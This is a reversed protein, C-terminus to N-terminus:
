GLNNICTDGDNNSNTGDPCTTSSWTVGSLNAGSLIAGSLNAGSMNAAMLDADSLNANPMGCFTFDYGSLDDGSLNAGSLNCEEGILYGSALEWGSPLEAPTGIIGGSSEENPDTGSLDAGSLTADTFSVYILNAGTLNTNTLNASSFDSFQTQAGALDTGTLNANTLNVGVVYADALDAGALDANPLQAFGGILYGDVLIWESPLAAPTGTIGGSMVGTLDAGTLDIGALNVDALNCNQLNADPGLYSCDQVTSPSGEVQASPHGTGKANSAQVKVKYTTGNILGTVTCTTAGTTTCTGHHRPGELHVVYGTIASGGDSAPASWSVALGTNASITEVATPPGPKKIEPSRAGATGGAVFTSLVLFLVPTILIAFARRSPASLHHREREPNRVM